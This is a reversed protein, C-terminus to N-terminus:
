IYDRKVVFYYILAWIFNLFLLVLIWVIKHPVPNIIAHIFMRLWFIWVFLWIIGIFVAYKLLKNLIDWVMLWLFAKDFSNTKMLNWVSKFDNKWSFWSGFVIFGSDNNSNNIDWNKKCEKEIWSTFCIMKWNIKGNWSPYSIHYKDNISNDSDSLWYDSCAVYWKTAKVKKIVEDTEWNDFPFDCWKIGTSNTIIWLSPKNNSAFTTYTITILLCSVFFLIYKKM